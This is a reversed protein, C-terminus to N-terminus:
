ANRSGRLATDVRDLLVEATFPKPLFVAGPALRVQNLSSDPAYGSMYIVRLGPHKQSLLQFLDTGTGGPMMIDTLLVGVAGGLEDFAAVAEAHGEAIAVHYGARELMRRALTRVVPDDEVLLITDYQQEKEAEPTDSRGAREADTVPGSPSAKPLFLRFTAGIGPESRVRIFGGSQSM